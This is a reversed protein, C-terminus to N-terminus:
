GEGPEPPLQDRLRALPSWRPDGDDAPCACAGENLDAGCTACLGECGEDCLPRYPTQGSLADRLLADLDLHEEVVEYGEELDVLQDPSAREPDLFLETVEAEAGAALPRLCRACRLTLGAHLTGRVLLGDVLSEIVADLRLPADVEVLPFSFGEPVPLRAEIPRSEGPRDVLDAVDIRLDSTPSPM